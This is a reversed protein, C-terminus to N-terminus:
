VLRAGELKLLAEKIPLGGGYGTLRGDSGIVRHCPVVLSIPNAGNAAGVARSGKPNGVRGALEGYSLTRGYPIKRLEEWVRKQFTTGEAQLPLDFDRRRGAFYESVQREVEALAGADWELPGLGKLYAKRDKHTLFDLRVLAGQEDVAGLMEGLPTVFIHARTTM